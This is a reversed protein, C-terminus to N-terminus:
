VGDGENMLSTLREDELLAVLRTSLRELEINLQSIEEVTVECHERIWTEASVRRKARVAVMRDMSGAWTSHVFQNRQQAARFIDTKLSVFNEKWSDDGFRSTEVLSTVSDLLRQFALNNLLIMGPTYDSENVLQSGFWKLAEEMNQFLVTMRGLAEYIESSPGICSLKIQNM